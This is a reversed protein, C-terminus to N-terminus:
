ETSIRMHFIGAPHVFAGSVPHTLAPPPSPLQKNHAEHPTGTTDLAKCLCLKLHTETEAAVALMPAVWEAFDDPSGHLGLLQPPKRPCAGTRPVCLILSSLTEVVVEMRQAQPCNSRGLLQAPVCASPLYCPVFSWGSCVRHLCDFIEWCVNDWNIFSVPFCPSLLM